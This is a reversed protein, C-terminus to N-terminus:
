LNVSWNNILKKQDPTLKADRHMLTYIKLPMEDDDIEKWINELMKPMDTDSMNQWNSFNLHERGENVDHVILWSAPAFKSYWLWITENSHCDYCSTQFIEKVESPGNFDASVSPNEKKMPVFQIAILVILLFLLFKKM